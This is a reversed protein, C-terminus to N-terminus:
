VPLFRQLQAARMGRLAILAKLCLAHHIQVMGHFSDELLVIECFLRCAAFVHTGDAAIDIIGGLMVADCELIERVVPLARAATLGFLFEIGCLGRFPAPPVTRRCTGLVASLADETALIGEVNTSFLKALVLLNDISPISAGHIWKYVAQPKELGCAEQLDKVRLGRIRMLNSINKGTRGPDISIYIPSM